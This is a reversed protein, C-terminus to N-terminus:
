SLAQKIEKSIDNEPLEKYTFSDPIQSHYKQIYDHLDFRDAIEKLVQYPNKCIQEYSVEKWNAKAAILDREIINEIENVQWISKEIVPLEQSNKWDPPKVSWWEADPVELKERAKMLSYVTAAKNRRVWIFISQPFLETLAPIRLSHFTNKSIFLSHPETIAKVINQFSTKENDTLEDSTSYPNEKPFFQYFFQGGEHPDSSTPTSGFKSQYTSPVIPKSLFVRELLRTLLSIRYREAVRNTLYYADFYTCLLQYTLTTGSRPAGIIWIPTINKSTNQIRHRLWHEVPKFLISELSIKLQHIDM